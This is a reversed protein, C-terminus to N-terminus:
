VQHDFVLGPNREQHLGETAIPTIHVVEALDDCVMYRLQLEGIARREKDGITGEITCLIELAASVRVFHIVRTGAVKLSACATKAWASGWVM